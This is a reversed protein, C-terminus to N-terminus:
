LLFEDKNVNEQKLLSLGESITLVQQETLGNTSNLKLTNEILTLIKVKEVNNEVFITRM